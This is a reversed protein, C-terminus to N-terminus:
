FFAQDVNAGLHLDDLLSVGKGDHVAIPPPPLDYGLLRHFIADLLCQSGSRYGDGHALAAVNSPNAIIRKHGRARAQDCDHEHVSMPSSFQHRWPSSALPPER